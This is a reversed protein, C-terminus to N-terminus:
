RREKKPWEGIDFLLNFIKMLNNQFTSPANNPIYIQWDCQLAKKRLKRNPNIAIPTDVFDLLPLDADSDSYGFCEGKNNQKPKHINHLIFKVKTEGKMNGWKSSFKPYRFLGKNPFDFDTGVITVGPYYLKLYKLYFIPSASIIVINGSNVMKQKLQNIMDPYLRPIIEKQIFEKALNELDEKSEYCTPILFIKKLILSDILRLLYAVLGIWTLVQLLRMRPRKKFYFRKWYLISDGPILTDDFDYYIIDKKLELLHYL